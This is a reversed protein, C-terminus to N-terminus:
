STGAGGAAASTLETENKNHNTRDVPTEDAKSIEKTLVEVHNVHDEAHVRGNFGDHIGENSKGCDNFQELEALAALLIM